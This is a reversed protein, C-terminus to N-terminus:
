CGSRDPACGFRWSAYLVKRMEASLEAVLTTRPTFGIDHMSAVEVVFVLGLLGARM